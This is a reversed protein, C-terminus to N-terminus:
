EEIGIIAFIQVTQGDNFSGAPKLDGSTAFNYVVSTTGVFGGLAIQSTPSYSFTGAKGSSPINSGSTNKIRIQNILRM